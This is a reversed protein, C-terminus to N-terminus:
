EKIIYWNTKHFAYTKDIIDTRKYRKKNELVKFRRTSIVLCGKPLDDYAMNFKDRPMGRNDSYVITADSLNCNNFDDHIFSLQNLNLHKIKEKSNNYREDHLEIGCVKKIPTNSSIYISLNGNGSGLDYFVGNPNNFYEPFSEILTQTGKDTIEGYKDGPFNLM